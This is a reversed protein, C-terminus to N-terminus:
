ANRKKLSVAEIYRRRATPTSELFVYKPGKPLWGEIHKRHEIGSNILIVKVNKGKIAAIISNKIVLERGERSGLHSQGANISMIPANPLTDYLWHDREVDDSRRILPIIKANCREALFRAVWRSRYVNWMRAVLPWDSYTSYDPECVAVFQWADFKDIYPESYRYLRNFRHDDTYFHLIGGEGKQKFPALGWGVWCFPDFGGETGDWTIQPLGHLDSYCHRQLIDPFGWPNSASYVVSDEEARQEMVERYPERRQKKATPVIVRTKGIHRKAGRRRIVPSRPQITEAFANLDIATKMIEDATTDKGVIEEVTQAIERTLSDLAKADIQAMDPTTDLSALLEKEQEETWSGMIVPVEKWDEELAIELRGHGDILRKTRTNWLLPRAWGNRKIIASVAKKQRDPHTKWNRPNKGSALEQPHVWRLDIGRKM